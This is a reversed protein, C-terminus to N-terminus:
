LRRSSTIHDQVYALNTRLERLDENNGEFPSENGHEDVHFFTIAQSFETHAIRAGVAEYTRILSEEYAEVVDHVVEIMTVECTKGAETTTRLIYETNDITLRYTLDRVAEAGQQELVDTIFRATPPYQPDHVLERLLELVAVGHENVVIGEPKVMEELLLAIDDTSIGYAHESKGDPSAATGKFHMSNMEGGPSSLVIFPVSSGTDSNCFLQLELSPRIGASSSEYTLQLSLDAIDTSSNLEPPLMNAEIDGPLLSSPVTLQTRQMDPHIDHVELADALELGALITDALIKVEQHEHSDAPTPERDYAM